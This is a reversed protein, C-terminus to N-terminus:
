KTKKASPKRTKAESPKEATKKTTKVTKTETQAAAKKGKETRIIDAEREIEKTHRELVIREAELWDAHAYGHIRGRREFLDYAIRAIEDYMKKSKDM